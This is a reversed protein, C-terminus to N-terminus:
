KHRTALCFCTIYTHMGAHIVPAAAVAAQEDVMEPRSLPLNLAVSQQPLTAPSLAAPAAMSNREQLQLGSIHNALHTDVQM